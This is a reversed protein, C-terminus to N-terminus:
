FLKSAADQIEEYKKTRFDFFHKKNNNDDKEVWVLRFKAAGFMRTGIRHLSSVADLPIFNLYIGREHVEYVLAQNTIYLVGDGHTSSADAQLVVKEGIDSRMIVTM